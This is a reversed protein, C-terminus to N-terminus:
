SIPELSVIIEFRGVEAGYSRMENGKNNFAGVKIIGGVVGDISDLRAIFFGHKAEFQAYGPEWLSRVSGDWGESSLRQKPKSMASNVRVRPRLDKDNKDTLATMLLGTKWPETYAYFLSQGPEFNALEVEIELDVRSVARGTPIQIETSLKRKGKVDECLWPGHSATIQDDGHGIQWGEPDPPPQEGPKETTIFAQVAATDMLLKSIEWGTDTWGKATNLNFAAQMDDICEHMSEFPLATIKTM